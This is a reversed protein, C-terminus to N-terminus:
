ALQHAPFNKHVNSDVLTRLLSFCEYLIQVVQCGSARVWDNIHEEWTCKKLTGDELRSWRRGSTDRFRISPQPPRYNGVV